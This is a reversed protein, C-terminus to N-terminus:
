LKLQKSVHASRCEKTPADIGSGNAALKVHHPRRMADRM